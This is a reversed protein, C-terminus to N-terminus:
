EEPQEEPLVPEGRMCKELFADAAAGDPFIAVALFDRCKQERAPDISVSKDRGFAYILLGLVLVALIM